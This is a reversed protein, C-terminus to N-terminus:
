STSNQEFWHALEPADLDGNTVAAQVRALDAPTDLDAWPEITATTLGRQELRGRTRALTDPSSWPLDDLLDEDPTRGVGILYFGGDDAPGLVADADALADRAQELRGPPLGPLDTGMLLSQDAADSHRRLCRVMRRGLDGDGQPVQPIAPPLPLDAPLPAAAALVPRAWPLAHVMRVMDLLMARAVAAAGAPGVAPILRTKAAGAVPPNTFIVVPLNL